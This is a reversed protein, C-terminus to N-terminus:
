VGYYQMLVKSKGRIRLSRIANDKIQRVRERTLDFYEGIEELTMSTKEMIGYYMCIVEKERPKLQNIVKELDEKFSEKNIKKEINDEDTAPIIDIFKMKGDKEIPSDISICHKNSLLINKLKSEKENLIESLEKYSPKRGNENEFQASVTKVKGITSNHNAPVRIVKSNESIAHLISQRIWWVAYSIFKFGKTEDFREAARILGINGESILDELLLGRNQYQKAVSIVFRLNANVLVDLAKKDGDKIRQALEVEEKNKLLKIKGVENFYTKIAETDRLTTRNVIRLNNM